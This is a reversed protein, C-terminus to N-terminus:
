GLSIGGAGAALLLLPGTLGTIAKVAHLTLLSLLGGVVVIHIRRRASPFFAGLVAELAWLAGPPGVVLAGVLAVIEIPGAQRFLLFDTARSIVDLVPQAVVFACLTALELFRRGEQRVRESRSM